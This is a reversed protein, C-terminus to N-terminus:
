TNGGDEEQVAGFVLLAMNAGRVQHKMLEANKMTMGDIEQYLTLEKQDM